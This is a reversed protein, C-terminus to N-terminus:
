TNRFKLSPAPSPDTEGRDVAYQLQAAGVVTRTEDARTCTCLTYGGHVSAGDYRAYLTHVVGTQVTVGGAGGAGVVRLEAPQELGARAHPLCAQENM